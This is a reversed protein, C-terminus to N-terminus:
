AATSSLIESYAGAVLTVLFDRRAEVLVLLPLLEIVSSLVLAGRQELALRSRLM